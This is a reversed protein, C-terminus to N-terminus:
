CVPVGRSLLFVALMQFLYWVSVLSHLKLVLVVKVVLLFYLLGVPMAGFSMLASGPVDLFFRRNGVELAQCTTAIHPHHFLIKVYLKIYM